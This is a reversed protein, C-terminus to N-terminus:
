VDEMNLQGDVPQSTQKRYKIKPLFAKCVGGDSLYIPYFSHLRKIDKTCFGYVTVGEPYGQREYHFPEQLKAYLKCQECRTEAM